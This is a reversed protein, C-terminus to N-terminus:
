IDANELRDTNMDMAIFGFVLGMIIIVPLM